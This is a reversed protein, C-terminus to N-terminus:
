AYRYLIYLGSLIVLVGCTKRLLAVVGSKENWNLYKQIIGSFTGAGVIVGCHGAAFAFVLLGAFVPQEKGTSFAVGLIPAMFAFTCPGLAIGFLLGLLLAGSLGSRKSSIKRDGRFPSPLVELLNLGFYLMFAAAFYYGAQGVDGLLRGAAATTIGILVIMIMMGLSFVASIRFANSNESDRQRSIYGVVLPISALHCPSLLISLVGWLFALPIAILAASEVANSFSSILYEM